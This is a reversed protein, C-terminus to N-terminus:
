ISHISFVHNICVNKKFRQLATQSQSKQKKTNGFFARIHIVFHKISSIVKQM